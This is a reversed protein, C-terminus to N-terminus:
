SLRATHSFSQKGLPEHIYELSGANCDTPGFASTTYEVNFFLSHGGEYPQMSPAQPAAHTAHFVTHDHTYHLMASPYTPWLPISWLLFALPGGGYTHLLRSQTDFHVTEKDHHLLSLHLPHSTGLAPHNAPIGLELAAWGM